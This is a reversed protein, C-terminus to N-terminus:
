HAAEISRTTGKYTGKSRICFFSHPPPCEAGPAFGRVSYFAEGIPVNSYNIDQIARGKKYLDYLAREIGTDAAYFAKVSNGMGAIMRLQSVMITSVGLAIALLIAMIVISLYLSVGKEQDLKDPFKRTEQLIFFM